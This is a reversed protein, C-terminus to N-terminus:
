QMTITTSIKEVYIILRYNTTRCLSLGSVENADSNHVVVWACLLWRQQHFQQSRYISWHSSRLLLQLLVRRTHGIHTSATMTVCAGAYNVLLVEFLFYHKCNITTNFTKKAKEVEQLKAVLQGVPLGYFIVVSLLFSCIYFTFLLLVSTYM